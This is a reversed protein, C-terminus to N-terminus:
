RARKRRRRWVVFGSVALLPLSLGTAVSLVRTPWGGLVGIHLPYL